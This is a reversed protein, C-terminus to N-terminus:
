RESRNRDTSDRKAVQAQGTALSPAAVPSRPQQGFTRSPAPEPARAPPTPRVGARWTPEPPPSRWDRSTHSSPEPYAIDAVARAFGRIPAALVYGARQDRDGVGPRDGGRRANVTRPRHGRVM